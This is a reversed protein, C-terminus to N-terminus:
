PKLIRQKANWKNRYNQANRMYQKVKNPHEICWRRRSAIHAKRQQPLAEDLDTLYGYLYLNCLATKYAHTDKFATRPMTGEDTIKKVMAKVYKPLLEYPCLDPGCATRLRIMGSRYVKGKDSHKDLFTQCEESLLEADYVYSRWSSAPTTTTESEQKQEEHAM